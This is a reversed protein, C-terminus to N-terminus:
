RMYHYTQWSLYALLLSFRVRDSSFAFVVATLVVLAVPVQIYRRRHARITDRAAPDLYFYYSAAVHVASGVFVIVTELQRANPHAHWRLLLPIALWPGATALTIMAMFLRASTRARNDTRQSPGTSPMALAVASSM